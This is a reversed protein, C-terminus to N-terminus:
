PLFSVDINKPTYKEPDKTSEEYRSKITSLQIVKTFTSSNDPDNFLDTTARLLYCGETILTDSFPLYGSCFGDYLIFLENSVSEGKTNILDVYLNCVEKQPINTQGDLLNAAFWLTDGIFYFDRDTHLYLKQLSTSEKLKLYDDINQSFCIHTLLLLLPFVTKPVM